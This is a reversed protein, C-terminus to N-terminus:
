QTKLTRSRQNTKDKEAQRGNSFLQYTLESEFVDKPVKITYTFKETKNTLGVFGSTVRGLKKINNSQFNNSAKKDTSTARSLSKYNSIRSIEDVIKSPTHSKESYHFDTDKDSKNQEYLNKFWNALQFCNKSLVIAQVNMNLQLNHKNLVKKVVNM